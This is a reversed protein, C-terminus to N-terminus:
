GGRRLVWVGVGALLVAVPVLFILIVVVKLQNGSVVLKYDKKEKPPISVLKQEKALWAIAKLGFVLGVDTLATLRQTLFDSDGVVVIRTAPGEKSQEQEEPPAWPPKESEQGEDVAAALCLRGSREGPDKVPQKGPTFNTDLWASDSSLLLETGKKRPPPPPGGPYSPQSQEEKVELACVGPFFIASLGRTIEHQEPRVVLPIGWQGWLNTVPDIVYGSLAKIGHPELIEHLDPAPPPELCVFLNGGQDLYKKIAEIEKDFLRSKPGIICLVACKEPIKPEKQAILTLEKAEYQQNELNRKLSALGDEDYSDLPKEGHGSLFYVQTKEGRSVALIASTIQEESGGTVEEKKDGCKVVITGDFQIGYEKVKDFNMKPDYVTVHTKPSAIDYERLRARIEESNYYDPSVFAILEVPKDLQKLIKITQESLTYQKSESFDHRFRHRAFIINALVVIGLVFVAFAASNMVQRSARQRWFARLQEKNTVVYAAVGG